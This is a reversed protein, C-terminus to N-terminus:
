ICATALYGADTEHGLFKGISAERWWDYRKNGLDVSDNMVVPGAGDADLYVYATATDNDENPDRAIYGMWFYDDSWIRAKVSTQAKKSTLHVGMPVHFNELRVGLLEAIIAETAYAAVEANPMKYLFQKHVRMKAFTTPYAIVHLDSDSAGAMSLSIADRLGLLYGLLNSNPDGFKSGAPVAGTNSWNSIVSYAQEEMVAHYRKNTAAIAKREGIGGVVTANKRRPDMEFYGYFEQMKFSTGSWNFDFPIYPAGMQRVGQASGSQAAPAMNLADSWSLYQGEETSHPVAPFISDYIYKNNKGKERAISTLIPNVLDAGSAM